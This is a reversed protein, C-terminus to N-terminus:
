IVFSHAADKYKGTFYCHDRVKRYIKNNAFKKLIRKRCIYSIKADQYPKIEEKTLPLMKKKEFNIINKAHERFSECLKKMCNEGRHLSNKNVISDFAWTSSM